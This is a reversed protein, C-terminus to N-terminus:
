TSFSIFYQKSINSFMLQFKLVIYVNKKIQQTKKLYSTLYDFWIKCKGPKSYFLFGSSFGGYFFSCKYPM